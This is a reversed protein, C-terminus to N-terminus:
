PELAKEFAPAVYPAQIGMGREACDALLDVAGELVVATGIEDLSLPMRARDVRRHQM